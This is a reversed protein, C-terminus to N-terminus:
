SSNGRKSWQVIADLDHQLLVCDATTSVEAYISLDDAFMGHKSHHIVSYIDNVYLIFLLPGLISGETPSCRIKCTAM